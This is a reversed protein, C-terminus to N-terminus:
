KFSKGLEYAKCLIDKNEPTPKQSCAGIVGLVEMGTYDATERISKEVIESGSNPLEDGCTMLLILKKGKLMSSNEDPMLAYFRDIFTKMQASMNSWYVPTALIMLDASKIKKYLEQMDDDIKCQGPHVKHCHKCSTCPSIRKEQLFVQEVEAGKNEEMGKILSNLLAATNGSKRPSGLISLVEM